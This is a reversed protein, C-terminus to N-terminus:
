GFRLLDAAARAGRGLEEVFWRAGAKPWRGSPRRARSPRCWSTTTGRGPAVGGAAEGRVPAHRAGRPRGARVVTEGFLPRRDARAEDGAGGAARRGHGRRRRRPSLRPDGFLGRGPQHKTPPGDAGPLPPQLRADGREHGLLLRRHAAPGARGAPGVAHVDNVFMLFAVLKHRRTLGFEAAQKIATARDGARQRPRGGQRAGVAGPAPLLLLRHRRAPAPRARVRGGNAEIVRERGAPHDPRPRLGRHPLYWSDGGRQMM